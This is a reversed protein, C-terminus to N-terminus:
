PPASTSSAAGYFSNVTLGGLSVDTVAKTAVDFAFVQGYASFGFFTGAWYGLGSVANRKINQVVSLFAGTTADIKAICDVCDGGAVMVFTGVGDVSVLDGSPVYTTGSWAPFTTTTATASNIRVYSAGSYGALDEKTSDALGPVFSLSTPFTGSGVITCAASKRDVTYLADQTVAYISGKADVAIDAILSANNSFAGVLSVARTKPDLAYLNYPSNAYVIAAVPDPSGSSSSASAATSAATSSAATNSSPAIGSSASTGGGAGAYTFPDGAVCSANLVISLAWALRRAYPIVM